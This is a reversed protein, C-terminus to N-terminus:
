KKGRTFGFPGKLWPLSDFMRRLSWADGVSFAFEQGGSDRFSITIRCRAIQPDHEYRSIVEYKELGEMDDPHQGITEHDIFYLRTQGAGEVRLLQVANVNRRLSRGGMPIAAQRRVKYIGPVLEHIKM